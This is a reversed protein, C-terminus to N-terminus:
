KGRRIISWLKRKPLMWFTVLLIYILSGLKISVRSKGRLDSSGDAFVPEVDLRVNSVKLELIERLSSIFSYLIGLLYPETTYIAGEMQIESIKAYKAVMHLLNKVPDIIEPLLKVWSRFQATSKKKQEDKKKESKKRGGGALNFNLFLYKIFFYFGSDERGIDLKIEAYLLYILIVAAFGFLIIYIM